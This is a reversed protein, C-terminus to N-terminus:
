RGANALLRRELRAIRKPTPPHSRYMAETLTLQRQGNPETLSLFHCLALGYGLDCSYRDSRYEARRSVIGIFLRYGAVAGYQLFRFYGKVIRTSGRYAMIGLWSRFCRLLLFILFICAVAAFSVISLVVVLLTVSCFVARNFEADCHLLHSIEHGLVANITVPDANELTARTVSICRIGYCTANMEDNDVLYLKMRSINIGSVTAVDSVLQRKAADLKGKQYSNLQDSRVAGEKLMSLYGGFLVYLVIVGVVASAIYPDHFTGYTIAFDISLVFIIKLIGLFGAM